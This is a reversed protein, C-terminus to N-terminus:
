QSDRPRGDDRQRRQRLAVLIANNGATNTVLGAIRFSPTYDAMPYVVSDNRDAPRVRRAVGAVRSRRVDRRPSSGKSSGRGNRGGAHKAITLPASPDITIFKQIDIRRVPRTSGSGWRNPAARFLRRATRHDVLAFRPENSGRFRWIDNPANPRALRPRERQVGRAAAVGAHISSAAFCMAPRTTTSSQAERIGWSM